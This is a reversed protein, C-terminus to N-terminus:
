KLVLFMYNEQFVFFSCILYLSKGNIMMIIKQKNTKVFKAPLISKINNRKSSYNTKFRDGHIQDNFFVATKAHTSQSM